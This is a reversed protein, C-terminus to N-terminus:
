RGKPIYRVLEMVRKPRGTQHRIADRHTVAYRDTPEVYIDLKFGCDPCVATYLPTDKGAM